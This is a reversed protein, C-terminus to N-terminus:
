KIEQSLCTNMKRLPKTRELTWQGTLLTHSYELKGCNGNESSGSEVYHQEGDLDTSAQGLDGVTM